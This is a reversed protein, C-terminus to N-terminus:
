DILFNNIEKNWERGAQRLGYLAKRARWIKGEDGQQAYGPVPKMYIAESLDAKVYATPVDDQRAQLKLKVLIVFFVRVSVLDAVPAYTEIFHVIWM